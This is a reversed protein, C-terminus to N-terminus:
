LQQVFMVCCSVAAFVVRLFPLKLVHAAACSLMHCDVRSMTLGISAAVVVVQLALTAMNLDLGWALLWPTPM